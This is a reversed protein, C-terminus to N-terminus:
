KQLKYYYITLSSESYLHHFYNHCWLNLIIHDTHHCGFPKGRPWSRCFYPQTRSFCPKGWVISKAGYTMWWTITTGVGWGLHSACYSIESCLVKPIYFRGNKRFMCYVRRFLSGEFYLVKSKERFMSGESCLVNPVNFRRIESCLGESYLVKPVYLRRLLSGESHHWTSPGVAWQDSSGNTRRGMPGFVWRYSSGNTRFLIMPEFIASIYVVM